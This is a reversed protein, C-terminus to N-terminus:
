VDECIYDYPTGPCEPATVDILAAAQGCMTRCIDGGMCVRLSSVLRRQSFTECREPDNQDSLSIASLAGCMM